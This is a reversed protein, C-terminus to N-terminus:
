DYMVVDEFVDELRRSRCKPCRPRARFTFRGGCRCDGAIKEVKRHYTAESIARGSYTERAAQDAPGTAVSYPGELGKLYQLHVEGLEEFSLSKTEGCQTCRLLHFLFGGGSNVTFREGCEKCVASHSWGM